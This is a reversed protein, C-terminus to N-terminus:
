YNPLFLTALLSREKNLHAFFLSNFFVFFFFERYKPHNRFFKPVLPAPIQKLLTVM